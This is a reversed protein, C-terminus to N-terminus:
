DTGADQTRSGSDGGPIVFQGRPTLRAFRRLDAPRSLGRLRFIEQYNHSKRSRLSESQSIAFEALMEFRFQSAEFLNEGLRPVSKLCGCRRDDIALPLSEPLCFSNGFKMEQIRPEVQGPVQLFPV